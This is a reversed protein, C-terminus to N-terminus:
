VHIALRELAVGDRRLREADRGPPAGFMRAYERSFQSASEYGVMHGARAADASAVLLRRAEQLRLMKQYQLPSMATATKFHRHFSATSMGALEALQEVRLTKDFHSRIWAIAQGIHSLRSDARTIQRLAGGLPGRLLRYLIEREHMPALIPADDPTDLLSLFRSWADLLDPTVASVAFGATQGEPAAPMDLILASLATRDLKMSVAVYPRAPTAEVIWGSAPLEITAIFYSAPDYRLIRDGIMVQKAGQLILCLSPEYMGSVPKTMAHGVHLAVRPLLTKCDMGDAHREAIMRMRNLQDQM